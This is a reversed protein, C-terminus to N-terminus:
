KDLNIHVHDSNDYKQGAAELVMHATEKHPPWDRLDLAQGFMHNSPKFVMPNTLMNELLIRLSDKNKPILYQKIMDLGRDEIKNNKSKIDKKNNNIYDIMEDRTMNSEYFNNILNIYQWSEGGLKVKDLYYVLDKTDIMRVTQLKADRFGDTIVVPVYKTGLKYFAQKVYNIFKDRAASTIANYYSKSESKSKFDVLFNVSDSDNVDFDFVKAGNQLLSQTFVILPFMDIPNTKEYIYASLKNKVDNVKYTKIPLSLKKAQYYIKGLVWNEIITSPIDKGLVMKGYDKLLQLEKSYSSITQAKKGEDIIIFTDNEKFNFSNSKTIEKDNFFVRFNMSVETKKCIRQLLKETSGVCCDLKTIVYYGKKLDNKQLIDLPSNKYFEEVCKTSLNEIQNTSICTCKENQCTNLHNEEIINKSLDSTQASSPNNYGIMNLIKEAILDLKVAKKFAGVGRRVSEMLDKHCCSRSIKHNLSMSPPLSSLSQEKMSERLFEGCERDCRCFHEWFESENLAFALRDEDTFVYEQASPDFKFERRRAELIFNLELYKGELILNRNRHKFANSSNENFIMDEVDSRSFRKLTPFAEMFSEALGSLTDGRKIDYRKRSIMASIQSSSFSM